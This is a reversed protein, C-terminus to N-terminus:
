RWFDIDNVPAMEERWKGLMSHDLALVGPRTVGSPAPAFQDLKDFVAERDQGSTRPFLHWITLADKPRATDLVTQLDTRTAEYERLALKFAETADEYYPIQLKGSASSECAMGTRLYAGGDKSELVVWGATVRLLSGGSPLVSLEYACGLDVASASPTDVIFLRPPASVSARLSGVELAFRRSKSNSQVLRLRSSPLLEVDGLGALKVKASSKADTVCAEGPGLRTSTTVQRGNVLPAGTLRQVSLPEGSSGGRTLFILGAIIVLALGALAFRPWRGVKPKGGIAIREWVEGRARQVPPNQLRASVSRIQALERQCQVCERVHAEISEGHLEGLVYATLDPHKSM